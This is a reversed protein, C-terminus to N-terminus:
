SDVAVTCYISVMRRNQKAFVLYEESSVGFVGCQQLKKALPIIYFDFFGIEGKYWFECPDKAARGTKYARFMEM